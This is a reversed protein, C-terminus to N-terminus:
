GILKGFREEIFEWNVVNWWQDVYEARRNQYHLYYAHEWVDLGFIPQHGKLLPSDQNPTSTIALEHSSTIILWAWGSGFQTLAAQNFAKQFQDFSGFEKDIAAALSGNPVSKIPFPTMCQWFLTHNAHGGGNNRVASRVEEPIQSLHGLLEEVSKDHWEAHKQLANNLKTVYGAHHKTHHIEMTKADIYPELANYAYPLKPLTYAM